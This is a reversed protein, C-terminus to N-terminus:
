RVCRAHFSYVSRPKYVFGSAFGVAWARSAFEAAPTASWYHECPRGLEPAAFCGDNPGDGFVCEYCEDTTCDGASCEDTVPCSGGSVTGECDRILTRLESISPLRWDDHGDLVIADCYKMAMSWSVFESPPDQQWILGTARDEWVGGTAFIESSGEVLEGDYECAGLFSVLVWLTM